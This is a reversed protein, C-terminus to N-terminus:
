KFWNKSYSFHQILSVRTWLYVINGKWRRSGGCQNEIEIAIWGGCLASLVVVNVRALWVSYYITFYSQHESDHLNYSDYNEDSNGYFNRSSNDINKEAEIDRNYTPKESKSLTM